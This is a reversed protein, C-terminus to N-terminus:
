KMELIKEFKQKYIKMAKLLIDKPKGVGEVIEVDMIVKEVKNTDFVDKNEGVFPWSEKVSEENETWFETHKKLNDEDYTFSVATVPSHKVHSIRTDLLNSNIQDRRAICKINICQRPALKCILINKSIIDEHEKKEVTFDRGYININSNTTNTKNINFVVACKECYKECSCERKNMLDVTDQLPLLGLRHALCEDAFVSNNETIEVYEVALCTLEGLLIRRLANAFSVNSHLAFKINTSSMELLEFKVNKSQQM